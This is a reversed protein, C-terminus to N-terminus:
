SSFFLKPGEKKEIGIATKEFEMALFRGFTRNFFRPFLCSKSKKLFIGGGGGGRLKRKQLVNEVHLKTIKQPTNKRGKSIFFCFRPL